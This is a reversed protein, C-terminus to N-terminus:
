GTALAGNFDRFHKQSKIVEQRFEASRAALDPDVSTKTKISPLPVTTACASLFLVTYSMVAIKIWGTEFAQILPMQQIRFM